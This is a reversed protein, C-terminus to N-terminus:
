DESGNEEETIHYKEKEEPSMKELAQSERYERAEATMTFTAELSRQAVFDRLSQLPVRFFEKRYNVKNLRASDFERHLLRELGPADDSRIMAHVDFEFPVSADGLEKVRDLPELRRTMGIKIIDEGFSGTNSIIYVNGSRTQQAMSLARQNKAEAENLKNELEALRQEYKQKEESSAQEMEKRAQEMAKKIAAEERAVEEMAKEYEKRAKEEERIQEQLQRQEEREKRRLGQAVTAWRLEDLRCDLYSQLIRANRFAEGNLNVISFADRVEQELTGHNDNRARSLIADVKGNFADIVFRVATERRSAEVYDCTAAQRQEVMRRTQDRSIRLSEGAALHGFDAALEDLLSHTPVIYRDGYGDVVNQIAKAASELTGKSLLAEYAEGALEQARQNAEISIRAAETRAQSVLAEAQLHIHRVRRQADAREEVADQKAQEIYQRGEQQLTEAEAIATELKQKVEAEADRLSAYQSLAAVDAVAKQQAAYASEQAQRAESEYHGHIRAAEQELLQVRQEYDLQVSAAEQAYQDQITQVEIKSQLLKTDLRRKLFVFVILALAFLVIVILLFTTM